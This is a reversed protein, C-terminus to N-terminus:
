GAARALPHVSVGMGEYRPLHAQGDWNRRGGKPFFDEDPLETLEPHQPFVPEPLTQLKEM